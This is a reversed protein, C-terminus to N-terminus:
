GMKSKETGQKPKTQSTFGPALSEFGLLLLQVLQLNLLAPSREQSVACLYLLEQRCWSQLDPKVKFQPLVTTPKFNHWYIGSRAAEAPTVSDGLIGSFFYLKDKFFFLIFANAM